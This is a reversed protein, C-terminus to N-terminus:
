TKPLENPNVEIGASPKGSGIYLMTNLKHETTFYRLIIIKYFKLM